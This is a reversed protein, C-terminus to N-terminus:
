LAGGRLLGIIVLLYGLLLTVAVVKENTERGALSPANAFRFLPVVAVAWVVAAMLCYVALGDIDALWLLVVQNVVMASVLVLELTIAGKVGLIRTYSDVGEREEEPGRTKRTIEACFGSIFALSMMAQLVPTCRVEPNALVALWYVALPMIAMHSLAYLLLQKELWPSCFFEVGMLCLWAFLLGWALLGTEGAMLWSWVLQVVIAVAGLVKLHFLTILGRQLIRQPHNIGDIAYDKHEDFIRILLFLWWTVLCAPIDLWQIGPNETGHRAVLACALYLIFFLLANVPPFRECMWGSLRRWLPDKHSIIRKTM